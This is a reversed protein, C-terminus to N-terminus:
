GMRWWAALPGYGKFGKLPELQGQIFDWCRMMARWAEQGRGGTERNLRLEQCKSGCEVMWFERCRVHTMDGGERQINPTEGVRM